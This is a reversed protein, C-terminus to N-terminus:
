NRSTFIFVFLINGGDCSEKLVMVVKKQTV